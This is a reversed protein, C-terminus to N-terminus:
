AEVLWEVSQIYNKIEPNYGGRDIYRGLERKVDVEEGSDIARALDTFDFFVATDYMYKLCSFDWEVGARRDLIADVVM